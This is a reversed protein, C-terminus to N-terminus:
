FFEWLCAVFLAYGPDDRLTLLEPHRKSVFHSGLLFQGIALIAIVTTTAPDM